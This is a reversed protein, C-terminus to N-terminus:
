LKKVIRLKVWKLSIKMEGLKELIEDLTGSICVSEDSRLRIDAEWLDANIDKRRAMKKREEERTLYERGYSCLRCNACNRPGASCLHILLRQDNLTQADVVGPLKEGDQAKDAALPKVARVPVLRGKYEKTM